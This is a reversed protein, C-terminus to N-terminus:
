EEPEDTGEAKRQMELSLDNAQERVYRRTYKAATESTPEWGMMYSRSEREVTESILIGKRKRDDITKSFNDNATHRCWHPSLTRPLDPIKNRLQEFIKNYSILSLPAGTRNAVFLFDHKRAGEIAYREGLVYDRTRRSLSDDDLELQRSRTKANPQNRRPDNPDDARRVFEVETMPTNFNAVRLGALEGRRPGLVFFWRIILFNRKRVHISRWPNEPSQPDTVEAIRKVILPDLGERPDGSDFRGTLPRRETIAEVVELISDQLASQAPHSFSLKQLYITAFWGIYKAIYTLRISVTPNSVSDPEPPAARLIRDISVIKSDVRSNNVPIKDIQRKPIQCMRHLAEVEGMTLTRGERFRAELDIGQQNLFLLLIEISRLAQEITNSASARSRMNQLTFATSNFDPLGSDRSVLLPFREGSELITNVIQYNLSM